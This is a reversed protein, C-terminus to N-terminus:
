PALTRNPAGHGGALADEARDAVLRAIALSATAAPSPANRVHLMGQAQTFVFDEVLSGDRGLAQARVGAAAIELDDATIGPVYRAAADAFHRRSAALRVEHAAAGANRAAFRWTGPWALSDLTDRASLRRREDRAGAPLAGPGLLVEDGVTRTLHVGLFPLRPDPVPYILSRVREAAAGRLRLYAGRFPVIRPDAGAGAAVALRDSWAGACFVAFRARLVGRSHVLEVGRDGPVPRTVECGTAIEGGAGRLEDAYSEAVARFDTVATTPSRLAGVGVADPEFAAIEEGSLRELGQVGNQSGRRALEDLAPLERAQAAIILKGGERLPLGHTRAYQRLLAAGQVALQAKLSGPRYYIGAHVVGSNRASQHSALESERELVCVSRRADRLALERAVALGVIGGGVVAVDCGAPLGV